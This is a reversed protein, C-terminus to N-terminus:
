IQPPNSDRSDQPVASKAPTTERKRLWHRARAPSNPGHLWGKRFLTSIHDQATSHHVNFRRTLYSAPCAEGTARNYRAIATWVDQQRTTLQRPELM